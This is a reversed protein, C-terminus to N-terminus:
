RPGGVRWRLSSADFVLRDKVAEWRVRYKEHAIRVEQDTPPAAGGARPDYAVEGLADNLLRACEDRLTPQPPTRHDLEAPPDAFFGMLEPIVDRHGLLVLSQVVYCRLTPHTTGPLSKELIPAVEIVGARALSRGIWPLDWSTGDAPARRAWGLLGRQLWPEDARWDLEMLLFWPPDSSEEIRRTLAAPLTPPAHAVFTLPEFVGGGWVLKALLPADEPKALELIVAELLGPGLGGGAGHMRADVMEPLADHGLDLLRRHARQLGDGLRFLNPGSMKTPDVSDVIETIVAAREEPTTPRAPAASELVGKETTGARNPSLSRPRSAVEAAWLLGAVLLVLLVIGAAWTGKRAM